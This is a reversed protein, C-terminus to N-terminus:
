DQNQTRESTGLARRAGASLLLLAALLAGGALLWGSYGTTPMNPEPTPTQQATAAVVPLISLEVYARDQGNLSVTSAPGTQGDPSTARLTAAGACLGGFGYHGSDNALMGNSWGEGEITVTAGSVGKGAADLVDGEVGSQCDPNPKEQPPDTEEAPPPVIPTDSPPPIPTDSPPPIPTDSPPPIPTDSPPPPTDAPPKTPPVQAVATAPSLLLWMGGILAPSLTGLFILVALVRLVRNMVMAEQNLKCSGGM